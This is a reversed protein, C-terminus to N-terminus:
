GTGASAAAVTRVRYVAYRGEVHLLELPGQAPEVKAPPPAIVYEAGQRRALAARQDDSMEDYRQALPLRAHQYLHALTATPGEFRIHDRYRAAWDALGRAHYPSAAVNFALARRSWLRFTRPGPPGIFRADLPTHERCWAALREIDDVPVESFRCHALLAETVHPGVVDRVCPSLSTMWALAPVTWAAATLRGLRPLSWGRAMWEAVPKALMGGVLALPLAGYGAQTDFRAMLCLGVGLAVAGATLRASPLFRAALSYGAEALTAAILSWDGTLGVLLLATRCWGLTTREGLLSGVRGAVVVLMLGRALTAMRFPQFLTVRLDRVIEIAFWAAVLWALSVGLLVLFRARAANWAWEAKAAGWGLLTLLTLAPYCAAALWQPWRWLHPLMHQPGQIYVALLRFEEKPLGEFLSGAQGVVLAQGPVVVVALLGLMALARGRSIRTAPVLVWGVLAANCLLALQLGVAPHVFTALGILAPATWWARPTASILDALALWSLALAILREVLIPEFLHNTGINGAQAILLLVVAVRGVWLANQPWFARALRDLGVYTCTFTFVFLGAIVTSLGALRHVIGLLGFYGRHPNFEDFARVFPDNEYLVPDERHLLLPLRYAQDGDWSHYGRISLYLGLLLACPLCVAIRTRVSAGQAIFFTWRVFRKL